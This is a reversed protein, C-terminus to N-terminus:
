TPVTRELFAPFRPHSRIPDYFAAHRVWWTLANREECAKELCSMAEDTNGMPIHLYALHLPAVYERSSKEEMEGLLALAEKRNGAAAHAGGLLGLYHSQKRKTIEVVKELTAVAERHRGLAMYAFGIAWLPYPAGPDIHLARRFEQVAEEFRRWGYFAWAVNAQANASLPELATAHRAMEVAEAGGRAFALCLGLWSYAPASRPALQIARRLEAEERELNWGYYHQVLALSVHVDASEPELEHAKEAAARARAFANLTPIGGYFGYICYADALGTYADTYGPDRALAREFEAIAEPPERRNFHYRGKLYDNYAEVNETGRSSLSAEEAPLLRVKLMAAIARSIEDQVEFVDEMERDYRESWLHYGDAVDILQATVRIKKGFQRVSGELVTKVGLAAGIKRVDEDKGKFAFASTRSAVRLAEIKTLANIIEETMGDSFYENEPDASMNRLPLVAISAQSAEAPTAAARPGSRAGSDPRSSTSGRGEREVVRLAFALDRASQFREEPSKELCHGVIEELESPLAKGAAAELPDERLIAMMTEVDSERRFAREGTLMEYLLAGLSFIDSRHDAAGGRVQEPSMYGVTGLITGQRTLKAGVVTAVGTPDNKVMPHQTAAAQERGAADLPRRFALGFDLIKVLGDRTVFVNQPKLDRHVIGKEHAAALGQAIQLAYELAKRQPIAGADLREHLTEGELLEMVAYAIGRERGFDHIALINPHSLAAVAKAEREFRALAEGDSLLSEPLVKIAVDRDLRSDRAKYVEGMGGAGLPSLIEYPGLRTGAVLSV